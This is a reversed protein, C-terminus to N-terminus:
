DGRILERFMVFLGFAIIILVVITFRSWGTLAVVVAMTVIMALGILASREWSMSKSKPESVEPTAEVLDVGCRACKTYGERYEGKCEPCIM